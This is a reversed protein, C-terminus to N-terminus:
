TVLFILLLFSLWTPTAVRIHSHNLAPDDTTQNGSTNELNKPPLLSGKESDTGGAGEERHFGCVIVKAIDTIKNYNDSLM